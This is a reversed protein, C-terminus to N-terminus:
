AAAREPDYAFRDPPITLAIGIEAHRRFVTDMYRSMQDVKMLRTVPIDMDRIATLKIEYDLPRLTRDYTARFAESAERLIPVGIELKCRARVDEIDEGTQDSIEKYWKFALKNQETTRSRGDTIEVTFPRRRGDLYVKLLALDDANKVPRTVM